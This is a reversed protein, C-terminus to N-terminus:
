VRRGKFVVYDFAPAGGGNCTVAIGFYEYHRHIRDSSSVRRRLDGEPAADGVINCFSAQWEDDAPVELDFRVGELGESHGSQEFALNEGRVLRGIGDGFRADVVEQDMRRERRADCVNARMEIAGKGGVDGHGKVEITSEGM